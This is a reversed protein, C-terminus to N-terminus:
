AVGGARNIGDLVTFALQRLFGNGDWLLGKKARANLEQLLRYVSPSTNNYLGFAPGASGINFDRAGLGLDSVQFGYALAARGGLSRTSAYVNLAAALVEADLPLTTSIILSQFFTAVQANAQGTLNRNGAAAGYLNPFTAALWGSLATSSPSGGLGQILAQGRSSNWFAISAAQGPGVGQGLDTVIARSRVTVMSGGNDHISVSVPRMGAQGFTYSGTVDFGGHSNAAVAGSTTVGAAWQITAAFDGARAGSNTDTFSAVLGSFPGGAVANILVPQGLLLVATISTKSTVTNNGPNPDAVATTVRATNTLLGPQTPTLVITVTASAGTALVGLFCTITGNATTCRGQTTQSSVLVTNAPLPDTLRVGTATSPGNNTVTYAYTLPDGVHAPGPPHPLTIALDAEHPKLMDPTLESEVPADGKNQVFPSELFYYSLQSWDEHGVLKSVKGDLNVDVPSDLPLPDLGNGDWDVPGAEPVFSGDALRVTYAPNGGIGNLDVLHAEDLTPLAQRSYDLTWSNHYAREQPTPHAPLRFPTQWIYNMISHYNPKYQTDDGNGLYDSGGGGHHLGLNHGLEHMFTGAQEDPLRPDDAPLLWGGHDADSVSGLTVMFDNSILGRSLGSSYYDGSAKDGYTDAFLCYHYVLARAKLINVSNPDNREADTGFYAAKVKDFDAWVNPFGALPINTDDLTAHLNIGDQGDPNHVLANPAAAFAAVVMDLTAQTPARGTMADVEVYIDKHNPNAGPLTLDIVGDENIDIGRTKWADAIGDGATSVMSFGSTDGTLTDTATAALYHDPAGADALTVDFEVHGDGNATVTMDGLFKEGDGFGSPNPASNAFFEITYTGLPQSNLFGHIKVQGGSVTVSTLVPYNQLDNAGTDGDGLDNLTDYWTGTGLAIGRGANKFISNRRISNDTGDAILVGHGQEKPQVGDGNYAITNGAGPDTGGILNHSAADAIYVGYFQNGLATSGDGQTGIYNGQVYTGTAGSGHIYVGAGGNGSIVNVAGAATGGVTTGPINNVEVGSGKNPLAVQGRLDTGVHNGQVTIASTGSGQILVGDRTNGSIVNGATAATGGVTNGAAGDIAVGNGGNGLAKGHGDTTTTGTSDTGIFNGQVLNRTSTAGTIAIGEGKNGSIVNGAGAATGGILNNPAGVISVGNLGNGLAVGHVDIATAGTVDTGIYNGQVTNGRNQGMIILVGNHGNGSIVNRAGPDTGGILLGHGNIILVGEGTNGLKATGTLDTGILNGGVGSDAAFPPFVIGNGGNGSIVNGSGPVIGGITTLPASVGVGDGSNGLPLTGTLDTGIFNGEVVNGSGGPIMVGDGSNGSIVNRAAATTGGITNNLASVLVGTVNGLKATGTVDTGIFNGEVLNSMAGATISVGPGTNGSILNRDAATTGGIINKSGSITVGTGRGTATTGTLDTGIFNGAILDSKGSLSVGDIVLGRVTSSDGGLSLGGVVQIIPKDTTPDFGPQTTGDITVPVTVLPLGSTVITQAGSGIGFGITAPAKLYNAEEIASRLSVNGNIDLGTGDAYHDIGSSPDVYVDTDDPTNVVFASLLRRSELREIQPRYSRPRSPAHRLRGPFSRRLWHSLFM